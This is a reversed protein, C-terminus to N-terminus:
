TWSTIPVALALGPSITELSAATEPQSAGGTRRGASCGNSSTEASIATRDLPYRIRRSATSPTAARIKRQKLWRSSDADYVKSAPLREPKAVAGLLPIAMVVDAPKRQTLAFGVPRDRDDALTHIKSTRGGRLRGIAEEFKGASCAFAESLPTAAPKGLVTRLSSGALGKLGDTMIAVCFLFQGVGELIRITTSM